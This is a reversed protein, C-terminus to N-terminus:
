KKTEENVQSWYGGMILLWYKWFSYFIPTDNGLYHLKALLTNEFLLVHAEQPSHFQKNISIVNKEKFRCLFSILFIGKNSSSWCHVMSGSSEICLLVTRSAEYRLDWQWCFLVWNLSRQRTCIHSKKKFEWQVCLPYLSKWPKSTNNCPIWGWFRRHIRGRETDM